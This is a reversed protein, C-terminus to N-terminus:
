LWFQVALAAAKPQRKRDFFGKWSAIGYLIVLITGGVGAMGELTAAKRVLRLVYPIDQQAEHETAPRTPEPSDSM